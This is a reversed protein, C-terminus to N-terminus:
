SKPTEVESEVVSVDPDDVNKVIESEVETYDEPESEPVNSENRNFYYNYIISRFKKM